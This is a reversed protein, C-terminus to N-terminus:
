REIDFPGGGGVGPDGLWKLNSGLEGIKMLAGVVGVYGAAKMWPRISGGFRTFRHLAGIYLGATAAGGFTKAGPLKQVWDYVTAGLLGDNKGCVNSLVLASAGVKWINAGGEGTHRRRRPAPHAKIHHTTRKSRRAAPRTAITEKVVVLAGGRRARSGGSKRSRTSKKTSVFHGKADRKRAAM